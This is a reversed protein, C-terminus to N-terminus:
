RRRGVTGAYAVARELDWQGSGRLELIHAGGRVRLRTPTQFGGGTFTGSASASSFTLDVLEAASQAALWYWDVTGSGTSFEAQLETLLSEGQSKPVVIPFMRLVSSVSTGDDTYVSSDMRRIYGDNGGLLWQRDIDATGTTTLVSWPGHTTPYVDTLFADSTTDYIVHTGATGDSPTLFIGVEGRSANYALQVLTSSFDVPDLLADLRGESVSEPVLSGRPVRYLGAQGLFYLTGNEDFTWARPGAIGTGRSMVQVRGGYGPDGEMMYFDNACGFILYDDGIPILALIASGPQGYAANNGAIATTALPDAGFDWDLPDLTRSMYYIAPNAAQNAIVVRGRYAAAIKCGAPLTGETAIWESVTLNIPDVILSQSGNVCYLKRSLAGAQVPVSNTFATGSCRSLALTELSGVDVAGDTFAACYFTARGFNASGPSEGGEPLLGADVASIQTLENTTAPSGVGVRRWSDGNSDYLGPAVSSGIEAATMTWELLTFGNVSIKFTSDGNEGTDTLTVLDGVRWILQSATAVAVDGQLRTTTSGVIAGGSIVTTSVAVTGSTDIMNTGALNRAANVTVRIYSDFTTDAIRTFFHIQCGANTVQTGVKAAVAYRTGPNETLAMAFMDTAAPTASAEITDNSTDISVGAIPSSDQTPGDTKTLTNTSDVFRLASWGAPVFYQSSGVTNPDSANVSIAVVGSSQPIKEVVISSFERTAGAGAGAILVGSRNNDSGNFTSVSVTQTESISEASWSATVRLTSSDIEELTLTCDSQTGGGSLSHTTGSSWVTTLGAHQVSLVALRVVNSSVYLFCLALAQKLSQSGRIFPGCRVISLMPGDNAIGSTSAQPLASIVASAYNTTKYQSVIGDCLGNSNNTLLVKDGATISVATGTKAQPVGIGIFSVQVWGAGLDNGTAPITPDLEQDEPAGESGIGEAPTNDFGALANIRRTGTEGAADTFVKAHGFRAGIRAVDDTSRVRVNVAAACTGAPQANRANSIHLGRIPLPIEIAKTKINGPM